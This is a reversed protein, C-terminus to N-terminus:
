PSPPRQLKSIRTALEDVVRLIANLLQEDIEVEGEYEM